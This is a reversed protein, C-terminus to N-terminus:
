PKPPRVEDFPILYSVADSISYTELGKHYSYVLLEAKPEIGMSGLYLCVYSDNKNWNSSARIFLSGPFHKLLWTREAVEQQLLLVQREKELRERYEDSAKSGGFREIVMTLAMTDSQRPSHMSLTM